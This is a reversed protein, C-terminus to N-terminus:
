MGLVGHTQNADLTPGWQMKSQGLLHTVIVFGCFHISHVLLSWKVAPPENSQELGVGYAPVQCCSTGGKRGRLISCQHFSVFAAPCYATIPAYRTKASCLSRCHPAFFLFLLYLLTTHNRNAWSSFFFKNTPPSTLLLGLAVQPCAPIFRNFHIKQPALILTHNIYTLLLQWLSICLNHWESQSTRNM